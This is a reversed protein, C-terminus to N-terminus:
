RRRKADSLASLGVRLERSRALRDMVIMTRCALMAQCYKALAQRM